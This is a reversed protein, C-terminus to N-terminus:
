LNFYGAIIKNSKSDRLILPLDGFSLFVPWFKKKNKRLRVGDSYLMLNIYNYASDFNKNHQSNTIDAFKNTDEKYIM